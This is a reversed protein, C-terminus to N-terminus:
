IDLTMSECNSYGSINIGKGTEIEVIAFSNNTPWEGEIMGKITWYHIDNKCSYHGPHHHGQFVSIVKGSRELLNRVEAANHVCLDSSIDSFSDLLQHIFIVIPGNSEELEVQLWQLQEKPVLAKTWDFNGKDYPSSDLNYNADLVIFKIDRCEFSYYARGDAEGHNSIHSLFDGKSISDMDHNGLVHYVPGNFTQLAREVDDLYAITNEWEPNADQDKLDGLEIIFDLKAENFLNIAEHLKDLTHRYIRTGARDRAAYHLDSVVGFRVTSNRSECGYLTSSVGFLAVGKCVKGLFLRRDM